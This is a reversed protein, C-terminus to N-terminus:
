KRRSVVFCRQSLPWTEAATSLSFCVYVVMVSCSALYIFYCLPAILSLVALRLGPCRARAVESAPCCVQGSLAFGSAGLWVAGGLFLCYFLVRVKYVVVQHACTVVLVASPHGASRPKWSIGVVDGQGGRDRNEHLVSCPLM